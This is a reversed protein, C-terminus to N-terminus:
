PKRRLLFSDDTVLDAVLRRVDGASAAFRRELGEIACADAGEVPRGHAYQYVKRV